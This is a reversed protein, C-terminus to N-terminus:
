DEKVANLFGAVTAILDLPYAVVGAITRKSRQM